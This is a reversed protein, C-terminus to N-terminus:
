PSAPAARQKTVAGGVAGGGSRQLRPAAGHGPSDGGPNPGGGRGGGRGGVAGGMAGEGGGGGLERGGGDM